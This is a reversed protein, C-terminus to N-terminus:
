PKRRRVTGKPTGKPKTSKRGSRRTRHTGSGRTVPVPTPPPPSPSVVARGAPADTSVSGSGPLRSRLGHLLLDMQGVQGSVAHTALQESVELSTRFSQLTEKPAAKAMELLDAMREMAPQTAEFLESLVASRSTGQARAIRTLTAYAASSLTVQVRPKATPM